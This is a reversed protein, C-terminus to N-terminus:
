IIQPINLLPITYLRQLYHNLDTNIKVSLYGCACMYADM